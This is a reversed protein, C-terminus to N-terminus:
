ASFTVDTVSVTVTIAKNNIADIMDTYGKMTTPKADTWEFNIELAKSDDTADATWTQAFSFGTEQAAADAVKVDKVAIYASLGNEIAVKYNAKLTEDGTAPAWENTTAATATGVGGHEIDIKAGITGGIKLDSVGQDLILSKDSLNLTLGDMAVADTVTYNAGASAATTTNFVWVGFGTGALAVFAAVPLMVALMRKKM